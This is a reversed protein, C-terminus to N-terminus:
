FTSSFAFSTAHLRTFYCFLQDRNGDVSSFRRTSYNRLSGFLLSVPSTCLSSLVISSVSLAFKLQFLVGLDKITEEDSSM